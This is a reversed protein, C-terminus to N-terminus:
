QIELCKLLTEANRIVYGWMDMTKMRVPKALGGKVGYCFGTARSIKCIEALEEILEKLCDAKKNSDPLFNINLIRQITHLM